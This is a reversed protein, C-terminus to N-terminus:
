MIKQFEQGLVTRYAQEADNRSNYVAVLCQGQM